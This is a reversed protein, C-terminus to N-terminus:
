SKREYERVCHVQGSFVIQIILYDKLNTEAAPLAFSRYIAVM